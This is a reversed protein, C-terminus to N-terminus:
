RKTEVRSTGLGLWTRALQQQLSLMNALSSFWLNQQRLALDWPSWDPSSNNSPRQVNRLSPLRPKRSKTHTGLQEQLKPESNRLAMARSTQRRNRKSKKKTVFSEVNKLVVSAYRQAAVSM